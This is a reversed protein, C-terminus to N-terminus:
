VGLGDVAGGDRAATRGENMRSEAVTSGGAMHHGFPLAEGAAPGNEPVHVRPPKERCRDTVDVLHELHAPEALADVVGVSVLHEQAQHAKGCVVLQGCTDRKVPHQWRDHRDGLTTSADVWM